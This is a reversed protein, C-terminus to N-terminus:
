TVSNSISIALPHHHDEEGRVWGRLGLNMGVNNGDKFALRVRARVPRVHPSSLNAVSPPNRQHDCSGNMVVAPPMSPTLLGM